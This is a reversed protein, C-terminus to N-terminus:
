AQSNHPTVGAQSAGATSAEKFAQPEGACQGDTRTFSVQVSAGKKEIAAAAAAPRM